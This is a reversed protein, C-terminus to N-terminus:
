NNKTAYRALDHRMQYVQRKDIVIRPSDRGSVLFGLFGEGHEFKQKDRVAGLYREYFAASKQADSVAISIFGPSGTVSTKAM